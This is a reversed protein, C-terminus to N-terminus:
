RYIAPEGPPRTKWRRHLWLWQDPHERIAREVAAQVRATDTPVDGTLELLPYFRLVYCQGEASWVLFGPLVAAGSRWALKAFAANSSAPVGFFPVFVGETLGANQDVLIGVPENAHLARLMARAAEKKGWIQNGTASRKATVWRDLLPNDLPRVVVHMPETLVAHAFASLEWNGLHATAFLVGKGRRKAEAYHEFGEYRVWRRINLRELQAFLVLSRALHDWMGTLTTQPLEALALNRRAVRNLKPVLRQLLRFYLRALDHAPELPMAALPAVLLRM